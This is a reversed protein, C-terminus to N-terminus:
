LEGVGGGWHSRSICCRNNDKLGSKIKQFSDGSIAHEIRCAAWEATEPEVGGEKM